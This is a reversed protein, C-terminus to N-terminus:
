HSFLKSNHPLIQFKQVRNNFRDSVYLSGYSDFALSHPAHLQNSTRGAVGTCAAICVGFSAGSQWRIIRANSTDSIYLYENKDVIVQSPYYLQRSSRGGTGNGAVVIGVSAGFFWKMIRHNNTDAIYITRNRDVFLGYSRNLQDNASGGMGTGAVITGNTSNSLFLVVQHFSSQSLYINEDHDVFLYYSARINTLRTVASLNSDKLAIKDVCRNDYDLVYLSNNRMFVDFPRQFSHNGSRPGIISIDSVSNLNVVVVRNNNTDAIYLVDDAVRIGISDNLRIGSLGTTENSDGAVTM